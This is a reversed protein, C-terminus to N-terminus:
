DAARYCRSAAMEHGGARLGISACGMRRALGPRPAAITCQARLGPAAHHHDTVNNWEGRNNRLECTSGLSGCTPIMVHGALGRPAADSRVTRAERSVRVTAPSRRTSAIHWGRRMCLSISANELGCRGARRSVPTHRCCSLEAGIQRPSPGSECFARRKGHGRAMAAERGGRELPTCDQLGLARPLQVRALASLKPFPM